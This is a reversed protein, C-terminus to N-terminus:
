AELLVHILYLVTWHQGVDKPTILPSSDSFVMFLRGDVVVPSHMVGIHDIESARQVNLCAHQLSSTSYTRIVCAISNGSNGIPLICCTFELLALMPCHQVEADYFLSM